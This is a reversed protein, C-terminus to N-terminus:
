LVGIERLCHCLTQHQKKKPNKKRCIKIGLCDTKGKLVVSFFHNDRKFAVIIQDDNRYNEVLSQGQPKYQLCTYLGSNECVTSKAVDKVNLIDALECQQAGISVFPHISIDSSIDREIQGSGLSLSLYHQNKL